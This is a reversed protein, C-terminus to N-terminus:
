HCSSGVYDRLFRSVPELTIVPPVCFSLRIYLCLLTRMLRLKNKLFTTFTNLMWHHFLFGDIQEFTLLPSLCVGYSGKSLFCFVIFSYLPLRDSDHSEHNVQQVVMRECSYCPLYKVKPRNDFPFVTTWSFARALTIRVKIHLCCNIKFIFGKPINRQTSENSYVSTESTRGAEMMAQDVGLSCPAIDWSARMRMCSATIVRLSVHCNRKNM